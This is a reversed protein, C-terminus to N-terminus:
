KPPTDISYSSQPLIVHFETGKGKESLLYIEGKHNLVIRKCLALGIGTGEFHDRSNLRAFIVFVQESFKEEIGIGNDRFTIDCYPIAATLSPFQKVEEQTLMKYSISIVPPTGPTSFKLANGLLNYFLQNMQLPVARILPLRDQTIIAKKQEILLDFDDVVNKLTANLDVQKFVSADIVKSFNLVDQILDSMREASRSIKDILERAEGVIVNDHRQRLLASFLRIKRLPEQLDHSAITAFQDLNNNSEHLLNNSEKLSATREEVQRELDRSFSQLDQERDSLEQISTTLEENTSQIEEKSTELEENLSQLEESGSLLEENARQLEDNVVEQDRMLIRMDERLQAMEKQLLENRESERNKTRDAAGTQADPGTPVATIEPKERFLIMYYHEVMDVLPIVEITVLHQKGMLQLPINEKLVTLTNGKAKNIASRLEFSLGQKVMKLVNLSPKGPSPELWSGTFGRFQVIELHANVVVGPPNFRSLVMDDASKQFDNPRSEKKDAKGKDWLTTRVSNSVPPLFRGPVPKRTYLKEDKGYRLFLDSAPAATESHGLLLYGGSNLAYHFITLARKQLFTELYILVNRCSVLDMNAFPPDKVFDHPAFVCLDRISKTIHSGGDVVTFYKREREASVGAMDKKSYIGTRAKTISRELIDTAFIQIKYESIKEGLHDSLCIAMSYAEQGTSCGAIWIRLPNTLSKGKLLQPFIKACLVDFTRPDRFFGTVPILLDQYLLDQEGVNEKCFTFYAAIDDMKKLGMRRMIRRRITSQKYHTFDTGKEGSVLALLQTFSEFLRAVQLPIQEPALIFDVAEADIASQPMGHFAASAQDQAFTFGGHEKIVKLGLTGDTGMGSLVVGIAHERHVESLSTFFVDISMNKEKKAPRPSLELRGDNATLMKNSPIVYVHNPEVRVNNTIEQVPIRTVKQLIDVLMSEHNPELHQVLIYAMGSNEPIARVLRKFAELGGASAGVGVVPFLNASLEKTKDKNELDKGFITNTHQHCADVPNL